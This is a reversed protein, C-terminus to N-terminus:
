LRNDSFVLPLVIDFIVVTRHSNSNPPVRNTSKVGSSLQLVLIKIYNILVTVNQVVHAKLNHRVVRFNFSLNVTPSLINLLPYSNRRTSQYTILINDFRSPEISSFRM